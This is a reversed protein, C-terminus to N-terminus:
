KNLTKRRKKCVNPSDNTKVLFLLYGPREPPWLKNRESGKTPSCFLNNLRDVPFFNAFRPSAAIIPRALFNNMMGNRIQDNDITRFKKRIVNVRSIFVLRTYIEHINIRADKNRNRKTQKGKRTTRRSSQRLLAFADARDM